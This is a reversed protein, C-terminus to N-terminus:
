RVLRISAFVRRCTPSVSEHETHACVLYHRGGFTVVTVPVLMNEHRAPGTKFIAPDGDIADTWTDGDSWGDGPQVSERVVDDLLGGNTVSGGYVAEGTPFSWYSAPVGDHAPRREWSAPVFFSFHTFEVLQWGKAAARRIPPGPVEERPIIPAPSQVEVCSAALLAVLVCLRM